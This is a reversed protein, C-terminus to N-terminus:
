INGQNNIILAILPLCLINNKSNNKPDTSVKYNNFLFDNDYYSEVFLYKYKIQTAENCMVLKNNPFYCIYTGYTLDYEYYKQDVNYYLINPKMIDYCYPGHYVLTDDRGPGSSEVPELISYIKAGVYSNTNVPTWNPDKDTNYEVEYIKGKGIYGRLTLDIIKETYQRVWLAEDGIKNVENYLYDRCIRRVTKNYVYGTYRETIMSLLFRGIYDKSKPMDGLKMSSLMCLISDFLGSDCSYYTDLLPKVYLDDTAYYSKGSFDKDYKKVADKYWQLLKSNSMKM